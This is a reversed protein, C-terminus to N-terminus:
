ALGSSGGWPRGDAVSEEGGLVREPGAKHVTERSSQVTGDPMEWSRPGPRSGGASPGNTARIPLREAAEVGSM